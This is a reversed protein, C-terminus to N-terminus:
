KRDVGRHKIERWKVTDNERVRKVVRDWRAAWIKNIGPLSQPNIQILNIKRISILLLEVESTVPQAVELEQLYKREIANRIRYITRRDDGVFRCLLGKFLRDIELPVRHRYGDPSYTYPKIKM